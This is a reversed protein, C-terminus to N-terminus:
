GYFPLQPDVQLHSPRSARRRSRRPTSPPLPSPAPPRESTLPDGFTVSRRPVHRGRTTLPPPSPPAPPSPVPLRVLSDPDNDSIAPHPSTQPASPIPLLQHSSHRYRRASHACSDVIAGASLAAAPFNSSITGHSASASSPAENTGCGWVGTKFPCLPESARASSSNPPGIIGTTHPRESCTLEATANTLQGSGNQPSPATTSPSPQGCLMVTCSKLRRGTTRERHTESRWFAGPSNRM